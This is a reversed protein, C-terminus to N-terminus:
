IAKEQATEGHNKHSWLSENRKPWNEDECDELSLRLGSQFYHFTKPIWRSNESDQNLETMQFSCQNQGAQFDTKKNFMKRQDIDQDRCKWGPWM